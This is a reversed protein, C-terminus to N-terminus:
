RLLYFPKLIFCIAHFIFKSGNGVKIKGKNDQEQNKPKANLIM